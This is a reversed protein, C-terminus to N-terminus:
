SENFDRFGEALELSPWSISDCLPLHMFFQSIQKCWSTGSKEVFTDNLKYLGKFSTEVALISPFNCYQLCQWCFGRGTKSQRAFHEKRKLGKNFCFIYSCTHSTCEHKMKPWVDCQFAGRILEVAVTTHLLLKRVRAVYLPPEGKENEDRGNLFDTNVAAQWLVADHLLSFHSPTSFPKWMQKWIQEYKLVLACINTDKLLAVLNQTEETFSSQSRCTFCLLASKLTNSQQSFDFWWIVYSLSQILITTCGQSPSRLCGM